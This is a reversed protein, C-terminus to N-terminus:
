GTRLAPLHAADGEDRHWGLRGAAKPVDPDADRGLTAPPHGAQGADAAHQPLAPTITLLSCPRSSGPTLPVLLATHPALAPAPPHAPRAPTPARRLPLYPPCPARLEGDQGRCADKM